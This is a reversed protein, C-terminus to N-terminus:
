EAADLDEIRQAERKAENRSGFPHSEQAKASSGTVRWVVSHLAGDHRAQSRQLGYTNRKGTAWDGRWALKM